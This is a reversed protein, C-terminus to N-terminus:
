AVHRNEEEESKTETGGKGNAYNKTEAETEETETEMGRDGNVYADFADRLGQQADGSVDAISRELGARYETVIEARKAALAQELESKRAQIDELHEKYLQLTYAYTKVRIHISGGPAAQTSDAGLAPNEDRRARREVTKGSEHLM